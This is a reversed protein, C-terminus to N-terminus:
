PKYNDYEWLLEKNLLSCVSGWSPGSCQAVLRQLAADVASWSFEPLIFYGRGRRREHSGSIASPTIATFGFIDGGERGKPGITAEIYVMCNTPEPPLAGHDLESCFLDKVEPHVIEIRRKTM